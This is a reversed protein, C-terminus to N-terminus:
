RDEPQERVPEAANAPCWQDIDLFGNGNGTHVRFTLRCLWEGTNVRAWAHCLGPVTRDMDLGESRVRLPTAIGLKVPTRAVARAIDVLVPKPPSVVLRAPPSFNIPWDEFM